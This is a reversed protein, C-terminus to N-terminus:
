MLSMSGNQQRVLEEMRSKSVSLQSFKTELATLYPLFHQATVRPTLSSMVVSNSSNALLHHLSKRSHNEVLLVKMEVILVLLKQSILKSMSDSASSFISFSDQSRFFSHSNSKHLMKNFINISRKRSNSCNWSPKHLTSTTACHRESLAKKRMFCPMLSATLKMGNKIQRNSM